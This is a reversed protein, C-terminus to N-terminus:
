KYFKGLNAKYNVFLIETKYTKAFKITKTKLLQNKM